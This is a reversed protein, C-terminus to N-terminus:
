KVKYGKEEGFRKEMEEDTTHGKIVQDFRRFGFNKRNEM